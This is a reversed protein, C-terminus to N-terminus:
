KSSSAALIDRVINCLTYLEVDRQFTIDHIERDRLALEERLYENQAELDAIYSGSSPLSSVKQSLEM